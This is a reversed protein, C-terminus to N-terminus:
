LRRLVAEGEQSPTEYELVRAQEAAAASAFAPSLLEVWRGMGGGVLLDTCDELAGLQFSVDQGAFFVTRFQNVLEFMNGAGVGFPLDEHLLLYMEEHHMMPLESEPAMLRLSQSAIRVPYGHARLCVGWAIMLHRHIDNEQWRLPVQSGAVGMHQRMLERINLETSIDLLVSALRAADM